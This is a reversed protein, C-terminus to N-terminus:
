QVMREQPAGPCPLAVLHEAEPRTGDRPEAHHSTMAGWPSLWFYYTLRQYLFINVDINLAHDEFTHAEM